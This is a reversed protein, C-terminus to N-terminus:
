PGVVIHSAFIRSLHQPDEEPSTDANAGMYTVWVHTAGGSEYTAIGNYERPGWDVPIGAGQLGLDLIPLAEPDTRLNRHTWTLGHDTSLAYRVDYQRWWGALGPAPRNDYYIVHLWGKSDTAAVPTFQDARAFPPETQVADERILDVAASWAGASGTLRACYVNVDDPDDAAVDHFFIYARDQSTPDCVLYPVRASKLLGSVDPVPLYDNAWTRLPIELPTGSSNLLYEFDLPGSNDGEPHNGVLVRITGGTSMLDLSHALHIRGDASVAPQCCFTGPYPPDGPTPRVSYRELYNGPGGWNTGDSTRLYSYGTPGGNFWFLFFDQATRRIVWPKDNGLTTGGADFAVTWETFPIAADPQYLAYRIHGGGPNNMAFMVFKVSGVTADAVAISSDLGGYSAIDAATWNASQNNGRASRTPGNGLGFKSQFATIRYARTM